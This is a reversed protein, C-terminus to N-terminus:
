VKAATIDAPTLANPAFPFRRLIQCLRGPLRSPRVLGVDLIDGVTPVGPLPADLTITNDLPVAKITMVAGRNAVTAATLRFRIMGRALGAIALLGPAGGGPSQVLVLGTDTSGAAVRYGTPHSGPFRVVQGPVYDAAIADANVADSAGGYGRGDPDGDLEAKIIAGALTQLHDLLAARTIVNSPTVPRALELAELDEYVGAFARQRFAIEEPTAGDPPLGKFDSVIKGM